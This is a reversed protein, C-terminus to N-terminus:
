GDDTTFGNASPESLEATVYVRGPEPRTDAPLCGTALFAGVFLNVLLKCNM